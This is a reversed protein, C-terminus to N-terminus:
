GCAKQMMIAAHSICEVWWKWMWSLFFISPAAGWDLFDFAKRFGEVQTWEGFNHVFNGNSCLLKLCCTHKDPLKTKVTEHYDKSKSPGWYATGLELKWYRSSDRQSRAYITVGSSTKKTKGPVISAAGPSGTIHFLSCQKGRGLQAYYMAAGPSNALNLIDWKM